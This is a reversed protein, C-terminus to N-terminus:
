WLVFFQLAIYHHLKAESVRVYLFIFGNDYEDGMWRRIIMRKVSDAVDVIKAKQGRIMLFCFSATIISFSLILFIVIGFFSLM